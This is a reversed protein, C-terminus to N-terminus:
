RPRRMSAAAQRPWAPPACSAMPCAGGMPAPCAHRRPNRTPMVLGLVAVKKAVSNTVRSGTPAGAHTYAATTATTTHTVPVHSHRSAANKESTPTYESM